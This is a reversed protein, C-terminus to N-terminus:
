SGRLPHLLGCQPSRARPTIVGPYAGPTIKFMEIHKQERQERVHWVETRSPRLCSGGPPFPLSLSQELSVSLSWLSRVNATPNRLLVAGKGALSGDQSLIELNKKDELMNAVSSWSRPSASSLRSGKRGWLRPLFPLSSPLRAWYTEQFGERQTAPSCAADSMGGGMELWPSPFALQPSSPKRFLWNTLDCSSRLPLPEAWGRSEPRGKRLWEEVASKLQSWLVGEGERKQMCALTKRPCHNEVPSFKAGRGPRPSMQCDCSPPHTPM